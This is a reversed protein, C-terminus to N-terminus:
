PALYKLILQEDEASLMAKVRMHQVVAKVTRPSIDEPAQHCRGCNAQFRKEGESTNGTMAVTKSKAAKKPQQQGNVAFALGVFLLITLGVEVLLHKKV